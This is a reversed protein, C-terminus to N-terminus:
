SGLCRERGDQKGQVGLLLQLLLQSRQIIGLRGPMKYRCIRPVGQLYSIQSTSPAVSMPYTITASLM